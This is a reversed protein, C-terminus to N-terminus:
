EMEQQMFKTGKLLTTLAIWGGWLAEWGVVVTRKSDHWRGLKALAYYAWYFTPPKKPLAKNETKSWMLKWKLPEFCQECSVSKSHEKNGLLERLQLLRITIFATTVIVKELNKRTQM